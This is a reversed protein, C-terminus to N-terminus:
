KEPISIVVRTFMPHKSTVCGVQIATRAMHNDGVSTNRSNVFTLHLCKRAEAPSKERGRERAGVNESRTRFYKEASFSVDCPATTESSNTPKRKLKIGIAVRTHSMKAHIEDSRLTTTANGNRPFTEIPWLGRNTTAIAEPFNAHRSM